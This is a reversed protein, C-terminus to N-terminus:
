ALCVKSKLWGSIKVLNADNILFFSFSAEHRAHLFEEPEKLYRNPIRELRDKDNISIKLSLKQIEVLLM